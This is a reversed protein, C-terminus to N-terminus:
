PDKRFTLRRSESGHFKPTEEEYDSFSRRLLNSDDDSSREELDFDGDWDREDLEQFDRRSLEDGEISDREFLETDTSSLERRSM